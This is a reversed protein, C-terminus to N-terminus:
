LIDIFLNARNDKGVTHQLANELQGGPRSFNITANRPARAAENHAPSPIGVMENWRVELGRDDLVQHVYLANVGVLSGM